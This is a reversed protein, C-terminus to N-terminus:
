KRGVYEAGRAEAAHIRLIRILEVITQPANHLETHLAPVHLESIAGPHQASSVTVVGDSEERLVCLAVTGIITHITVYPNVPM